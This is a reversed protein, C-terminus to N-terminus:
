PTSDSTSYNVDRAQSFPPASAIIGRLLHTAMGAIPVSPFRVLGRDFAHLTQDLNNGILVSCAVAAGLAGITSTSHWGISYHSPNILAGLGNITEFGCIYADLLDRGSIESGSGLALLAPVLVASPHTIGLIEHDDYELAHAATGNVLAANEPLVSDGAWLIQGSM